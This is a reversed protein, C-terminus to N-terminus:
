RMISLLGFLMLIVLLLMQVVSLIKAVQTARKPNDQLGWRDFPFFRFITERHKKYYEDPNEWLRYMYFAGVVLLIACWITWCTWVNM